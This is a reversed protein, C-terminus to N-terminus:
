APLSAGACNTRRDRREVFRLPARRQRRRGRLQDRPRAPSLPAIASRMRPDVRVQPVRREVVLQARQGLPVAAHVRRRKHVLVDLV